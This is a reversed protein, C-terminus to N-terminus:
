NFKPRKVFIVALDKSNFDQDTLDSFTIVRTYPRIKSIFEVIVLDYKVQIKIPETFAKSEYLTYFQIFSDGDEESIKFTLDTKVGKENIYFCVNCISYNILDQITFGEGAILKEIDNKVKTGLELCYFITSGVPYLLMQDLIPLFADQAKRPSSKSIFSIEPKVKFRSFQDILYSLQERSSSYLKLTKGTRAYYAELFPLRPYMSADIRKGIRKFRDAVKTDLLKMFERASTNMYIIEHINSINLLNTKIIPDNLNKSDNIYAKFSSVFPAKKVLETDFGYQLLYMFQRSIVDYIGYEKENFGEEIEMDQEGQGEQKVPTLYPDLVPDPEQDEKEPTKFWKDQYARFDPELEPKLPKLPTAPKVPKMPEDFMRQYADSIGGIPRFDRNENRNSVVANSNFDRQVLQEQDQGQEEEVPFASNILSLDVQDIKRSSQSLSRLFDDRSLNMRKALDILETMTGKKGSIELTNVKKPTTENSNIFNNIERMQNLRDLKNLDVDRRGLAVLLRSFKNQYFPDKFTKKIIPVPEDNLHAFDNYLLSNPREANFLDLQSVYVGQENLLNM